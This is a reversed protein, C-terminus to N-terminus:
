DNIPPLIHVPILLVPHFVDGVLYRLYILGPADNRPRASLGYDWGAVSQYEVVIKQSEGHALGYYGDYSTNCGGGGDFGTSPTWQGGGNNGDIYASDAASDNYIYVSDYQTSAALSQHFIFGEGPSGMPRRVSLMPPHTYALAGIDSGSEGGAHALSAYGLVPSFNAGSDAFMPSGYRSSADCAPCWKIQWLTDPVFTTAAATSVVATKGSTPATKVTRVIPLKGSSPSTKVTRVVAIKFTSDALPLHALDPLTITVTDGFSGAVVTVTDEFSGPQITVTDAYSMAQKAVANRGPWAFVNEWEGNWGISRWGTTDNPFGYFAYLNHDSKLKTAHSGHSTSGGAYFSSDYSFPAYQVASMWKNAPYQPNADMFSYFINNTVTLTDAYGQEIPQLNLIAAGERELVNEWSVVKGAFTNHDITNKGRVTADSMLCSGLHNIIVSRTISVSALGAQAHLGAGDTHIYCSDIDTGFVTRDNGENGASSIRFTVWGGSTGTGGEAIPAYIMTDVDFHANIVSDRMTFLVSSNSTKPPGFNVRCGRMELGMTRKINFWQSPNATAYPNIDFTSFEVLCSDARTLHFRNDVGSRADGFLNTCRINDFTNGVAGGVEWGPCGHQGEEWNSGFDYGNIQSHGVYSYRSFSFDFGGGNFVCYKLSDFAAKMTFDTTSTFTVGKISVYRKTLTAGSPVSVTAYEPHDLAGIYTVWGTESGLVQCAPDFNGQYNAGVCREVIVVDGAAVTANAHALTGWALASSLGSRADRQALTLGHPEPASGNLYYTTAVAPGALVALLVFAAIGAAWKRLTM